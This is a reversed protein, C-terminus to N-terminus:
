WQNFETRGRNPKAMGCNGSNIGGKAGGHLSSGNRISRGAGTPLGRFGLEESVILDWEAM